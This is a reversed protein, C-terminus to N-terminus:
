TWRGAKPDTASAPQEPIERLPIRMISQAEAFTLGAEHCFRLAADAVSHEDFDKLLLGPYEIPKRQRQCELLYNFRGTLLKNILRSEEGTRPCHFPRFELTTNPTSTVTQTHEFALSSIHDLSCPAYHRTISLLDMLRRLNQLHQFSGSLLRQQPDKLLHNVRGTVYTLLRKQKEEFASYAFKDVRAERDFAGPMWAANEMDIMVRFALEANGHFAQYVDVHKHGSRGPMNLERAATHIFRDFCEYATLERLIQGETILFTQDLTYPTTNVEIVDEDLFIKCRWNGVKIVTPLETNEFDAKTEYDIAHHKLIAEIREIFQAKKDQLLSQEIKKCQQDPWFEMEEGFRLQEPDIAPVKSSIRTVQEAGGPAPLEKQFFVTGISKDLWAELERECTWRARAEEHSIEGRIYPLKVKYFLDQRLAQEYQSADDPSTASKVLLNDPFRYTQLWRELESDSLGSLASSGQENMLHRADTRLVLPYLEPETIGGNLCRTALTIYQIILDPDYKERILLRSDPLFNSKACNRALKKIYSFLWNRYGPSSEKDCRGLENHTNTKLESLLETFTTKTIYAQQFNATLLEELARGISHASHQEPSSTVVPAVSRSDLRTPDPVPEFGAIYGSAEQPPEGHTSALSMGGSGPPSIGTSQVGPGSLPNM